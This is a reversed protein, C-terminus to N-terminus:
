PHHSIITATTRPASLREVVSPVAFILNPQSGYVMLGVMLQDYLAQPILHSSLSAFSVVMTTDTPLRTQTTPIPIWWPLPHPPTPPQNESLGAKILPHQNCYRILASLWPTPADVYHPSFDAYYSNEVEEDLYHHSLTEVFAALLVEAEKRAESTPHFPLVTVSSKPQLTSHLLRQSM